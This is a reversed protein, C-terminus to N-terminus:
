QVVEQGAAMNMQAAATLYTGILNLYALRTTRYQAEADLYDLLSAGGNTYAFHVRDRTDASLKLYRAKYPRLLNLASEITVYASDVDNFVQAQAADALRENRGIDLQTRAVDVRAQELRCQGVLRARDHGHMKRAEGDVHRREIAKRIPMAQADDLIGGMRDARTVGALRDAADAIQDHEAKVRVLVHRRDFAARDGGGVGARDFEDLLM